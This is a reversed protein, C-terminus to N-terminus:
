RRVVGVPVGTNCDLRLLEGPGVGYRGAPVEYDARPSMARLFTLHTGDRPDVMPSRCASGAITDGAALRATTDAPEFRAPVDQAPHATADAPFSQSSSAGIACAGAGLLMAALAAPSVLPRVRLAPM